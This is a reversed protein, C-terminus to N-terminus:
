RGLRGTAYAFDGEVALTASTLVTAHREGIVAERILTSADIPAARLTVGRGRLEVFHVYRPDDATTLTDLDTRMTAPQPLLDNVDELTTDPPCLLIIQNLAEAVAARPVELRATMDSTLRSRDGAGQNFVTDRLTEFMQRACRQFEGIAGTLGIARRTDTAALTSLVATSDRAFQDVRHTGLAVGFYHTVVDELQHAEDIVLLDCEPIVEGFNGQRVSADACLLHHNVIVLTADDARERMRTVFCPGYSPCDRGLCQDGTATLEHWLPLDDPLDDVEARDGTDTVDAWEALRDMWQRDSFPLSAAAQKLGALRHLCLYNTRGKMYAARIPQGLVRSLTPVDKYFIQDQLNKTGTSVLVRRGSLVAPVLYALTKGTGTGAEAVLTGGYEFTAAVAQALRQQGPRAEFGELGAGLPGADPEFV